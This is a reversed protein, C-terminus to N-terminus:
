DEEIGCLTGLRNACFGGENSSTEDLERSESLNEIREALVDLLSESAGESPSDRICMESGM